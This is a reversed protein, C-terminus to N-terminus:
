SKDVAGHHTRENKTAERERQSVISFTLFWLLPTSLQLPKYNNRWALPWICAFIIILFDAMLILRLTLIATYHNFDCAVLWRWKMYANKPQWKAICGGNFDNGSMLLTVDNEGHVSEFWSSLSKCCKIDSCISKCRKLAIVAAEQISMITLLRRFFYLQILAECYNAGTCNNTGTTSHEITNYGHM